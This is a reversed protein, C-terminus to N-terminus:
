DRLRKDGLLEEDWERLPGRLWHDIPVRFGMKPREIIERPTFNGYKDELEARLDQHNYIEGNYVLTYRGCLSIMPQHGAPSLDIISLRPHALALDGEENLWVGTDDPGRHQVRMAMREVLSSDAGMKDWYGVIGCM